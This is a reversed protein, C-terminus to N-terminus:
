FKGLNPNQSPFYAMQCSQFQAFRRRLLQLSKKRLFGLWAIGQRSEIERGMAGTEVTAPPSPLVLSYIGGPCSFHNKFNIPIMLDILHSVLFKTNGGKAVPMAKYFYV